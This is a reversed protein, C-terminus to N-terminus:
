DCTLNPSEYSGPGGVREAQGGLTCRGPGPGPPSPISTRIPAMLYIPLGSDAPLDSRIEPGRSGLLSTGHASEFPM